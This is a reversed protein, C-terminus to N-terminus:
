SLRTAWGIKPCRSSQTNTEFILIITIIYRIHHYHISVMLDKFTQYFDETRACPPTDLHHQYSPGSPHRRDIKCSSLHPSELFRQGILSAEISKKQRWPTMKACRRRCVRKCVKEACGKACMKQVGKQVGKQGGKQGGKQVGKEGM